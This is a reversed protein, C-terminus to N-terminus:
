TESLEYQGIYEDFWKIYRRKNGLEPYYAKGCIDPITLALTLAAIYANHDLAKNVDDVIRKIM